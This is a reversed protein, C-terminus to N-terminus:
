AQLGLEGSNDQFLLMFEQIPYFVILPYHLNLLSYLHTQWKGWKLGLDIWFNIM